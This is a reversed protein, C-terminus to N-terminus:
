NVLLTVRLGYLIRRNRLVSMRIVPLTHIDCAIKAGNIADHVQVYVIKGASLSRM